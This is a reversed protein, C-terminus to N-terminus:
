RGMRLDKYTSTIENISVAATFVDDAYKYQNKLTLDGILYNLYAQIEKLKTVQDQEM